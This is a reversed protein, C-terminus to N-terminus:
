PCAAKLRAVREELEEIEKKRSALDDARAKNRARMADLRTIGGDILTFNDKMMPNMVVLSKGVNNFCHRYRRGPKIVDSDEDDEPYFDEAQAWIRRALYIERDTIPLGELWGEFYEKFQELFFETEGVFVNGYGEYVGQLYVFGGDKLPVEIIVEDAFEQTGVNKCTKGGCACEFGFIGM